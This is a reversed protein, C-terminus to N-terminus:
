TQRLSGKTSPLLSLRTLCTLTFWTAALSAGALMLVAILKLMGRISDAFRCCVCLSVYGCKLLCMKDKEKKSEPFVFCGFPTMDLLLALPLGLVSSVSDTDEFACSLM